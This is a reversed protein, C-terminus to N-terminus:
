TVGGGSEDSRQRAANTMRKELDAIRDRLNAAKEFAEQEVAKKLQNRLRDLDRRLGVQGKLPAPIRGEYNVTGHIRRLLPNLYSEFTVYCSGCGLRGTKKLEEYTLGCEPCVTDKLADSQEGVEQEVMGALFDGISLPGKSSHSTIGKKQACEKCLHMVTKKNDVIQTLVFTAENIGCNECKM